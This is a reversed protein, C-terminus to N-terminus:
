DCIKRTGTYANTCPMRLLLMKQFGVYRQVQLNIFASGGM